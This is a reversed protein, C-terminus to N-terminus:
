NGPASLVNLYAFSRDEIKVTCSTSSKEYVNSTITKARRHQVDFVVATLLIPSGNAEFAASSSTRRSSAECKGFSMPDCPAEAYGLHSWDVPVSKSETQLPQTPAGLKASLTKVLKQSALECFETPEPGVTKPNRGSTREAKTSLSHGIARDNDDFNIEEELILGDLTRSFTVAYPKNRSWQTPRGALYEGVEKV